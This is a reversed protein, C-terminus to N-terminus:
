NLHTLFPQRSGQRFRGIIEALSFFLSAVLSRLFFLIPLPSLSLSFHRFKMTIGKRHLHGYIAVALFEEGLEHRGQGLFWNLLQQAGPIGASRRDPEMEMFMLVIMMMMM